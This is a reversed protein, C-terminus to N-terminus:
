VSVPVGCGQVGSMCVSMGSVCQCVQVWQLHVQKYVVCECLSGCEYKSILYTCECVFGHVCPSTCINEAPCRPYGSDSEAVLSACASGGGCASRFLGSDLCCRCVSVGLRGCLHLHTQVRVCWCARCGHQSGPARGRVHVCLCVPLRGGCATGQGMSGCLPSAADEGFGGEM